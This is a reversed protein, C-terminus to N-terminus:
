AQILEAHLRVFEAHLAQGISDLNEKENNHAAMELRECVAHMRMGGISGSSGKMSHAIVKITEFDYAKIAQDIKDLRDPMVDVFMDTLEKVRHPKNRVRKLLARRDWVPQENM